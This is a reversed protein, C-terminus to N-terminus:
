YLSDKQIWYILLNVMSLSYKLSKGKMMKYLQMFSINYCPNEYFFQLFIKRSHIKNLLNPQLSTKLDIM